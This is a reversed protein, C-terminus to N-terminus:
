LQVRNTSTANNDVDPFPLIVDIPDATSGISLCVPPSGELSDEEGRRTGM